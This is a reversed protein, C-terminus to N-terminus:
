VLLLGGARDVILARYITPGFPGCVHCGVRRRPAEDACTDAVVKSCMLGLLVGGPPEKHVLSEGQRSSSRTSSPCGRALLVGQLELSRSCFFEKNVLSDEAIFVGGFEPILELLGGLRLYSLIM